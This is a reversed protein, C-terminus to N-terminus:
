VNLNYSKILGNDKDVHLLVSFCVLLCGRREYKKCLLVFSENLAPWIQQVESLDEQPYALKKASSLM